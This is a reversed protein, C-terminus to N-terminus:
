LSESIYIRSLGNGSHWIDNIYFNKERFVITDDKNLGTIDSEKCLLYKNEVVLTEDYTEVTKRESFLIVEVQNGNITAYEGFDSFFLDLDETM